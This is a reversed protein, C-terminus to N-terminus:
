MYGQRGGIRAHGKANEVGLDVSMGHSLQASKQDHLDGYSDYRSEHSMVPINPRVSKASTIIVLAIRYHSRDLALTSSPPNM